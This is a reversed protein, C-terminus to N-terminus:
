NGSQIPRPDYEKLLQWCLFWNWFLFYFHPFSWVSILSATHCRTEKYLGVYINQFNVQIKAYKAFNRSIVKRIQKLIGLDSLSNRKTNLTFVGEGLFWWFIFSWSKNRWQIVRGRRHLIWPQGANDHVACGIFSRRTIFSLLPVAFIAEIEFDSSVLNYCNTHLPRTEPPLNFWDSQNLPQIQVWLHFYCLIISSFEYVPNKSFLINLLHPKQICAQSKAM